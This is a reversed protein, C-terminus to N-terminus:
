LVPLYLVMLMIFLYIPFAICVQLYTVSVILTFLVLIVTHCAIYSVIVM